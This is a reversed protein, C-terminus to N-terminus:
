HMEKDLGSVLYDVHLLGCMEDILTGVISGEQRRWKVQDPELRVTSHVIECGLTWQSKQLQLLFKCNEELFELKQEPMIFQATDIAYFHQDADTYAGIFWDPRGILQNTEHKVKIIRGLLEMPAALKLGCLEFLLVDFGTQAWEPAMPYTLQTKTAPVAEVATETVDQIDPAIPIEIKEAPQTIPEAVELVPEATEIIPETVVEEIAEKIDAQRETVTKAEVQTETETEAKVEVAVDIEVEPEAAVQVGAKRQQILKAVQFLVQTLPDALDLKTPVDTEVEVAQKVEAATEVMDEVSTEPISAVIHALTDLSSETQVEQKTALEQLTEDEIDPFLDVLLTDMYEQVVVDSKAAPEKFAVVNSKNQPSLQSM